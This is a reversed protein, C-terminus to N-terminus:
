EEYNILFFPKESPPVEGASLPSQGALWFLVFHTLFYLASWGPSQCASNQPFTVRREVWLREVVASKQAVSLLRVESISAKIIVCLGRVKHRYKFHM